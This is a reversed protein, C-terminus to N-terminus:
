IIRMAHYAFSVTAAVSVNPTYNLNLNGGSISADFTGLYEGTAISGYEILNATTGNHVILVDTAQFDTNQAIQIQYKVSRFSTIGLSSIATTATGTVVTTGVGVIYTNGFNLVSGVSINITSVGSVTLNGSINTDGRVDLKYEPITTGIGVRQNTFDYHFGNDGNILGSSSHYQVNGFTGGAAVDAATTWAIGTSSKVLRAGTAGTSGFKDALNTIYITSASSVYVDNGFTAIGIFTSTNNFTSVGSVNLDDLESHGTVNIGGNSTILGTFTSVGSANINDLETHGTVNFISGNFTLNASDQLIGDSGALVIRNNTLNEITASNATLGNNIDVLGNFTSVGAVGLNNAFFFLTSTTIGVFTALGVVRIDSNFTSIGNINVNGIIDLKHQPQTSGIGVRNTNPDFVFDGAGQILGGSGHYQVASFGGKAIADTVSIRVTAIGTQENISSGVPDVTVGTGVFNFKNFSNALGVQVDNNFVTFSGPTLSLGGTIDQTSVWFRNTSIGTTSRTSYAALIFVDGSIPKPKAGISSVGVLPDGLDAEAQELGLYQYRDSTLGSQPKKTQRKSLFGPSAM